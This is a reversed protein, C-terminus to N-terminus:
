MNVIRMAPPITVCAARAGVVIAFLAIATFVLLPLRNVSHTM